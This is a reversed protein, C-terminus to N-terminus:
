WGRAPIWRDVVSGERVVHYEAFLAATLCAHNPLISLRSGIPFSDFDIPEASEVFGHEQSLDVVRLHPSGAVVGFCPERRLHIAGRDKSLALAGADILMRNRRPYHGAVTALVRAACDDISCTGIDAQYLDFFVYNGPRLETVGEWNEGLVATPTSGASVTACPVGAGALADRCGVLADREEEAVAVISRQDGCGYSHGGHALVGCFDIEKSAHMRRALGLADPGLPDVGSRGYGSDVKLLARFRVKQTSAGNLARGFREVADITDAHDVLIQFSGIAATLRAAESLKDPTIPFAYTIDGFGREAFFRAEAMTSVTIPGPRGGTQMLAIEETKHTKVHPRLAVGRARARDIMAASNAEVKAVDVLFAPTRLGTPNM